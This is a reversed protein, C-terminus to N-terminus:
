DTLTLKLMEALADILLSNMDSIVERDHNIKEYLDGPPHDTYLLTKLEENAVEIVEHLATVEETLEKVRTVRSKRKKVIPTRPSPSSPRELLLLRPM